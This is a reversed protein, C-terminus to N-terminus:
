RWDGILWAVLRPRGTWPECAVFADTYVIDTTVVQEFQGFLRDLDDSVDGPEGLVAADHVPAAESTSCGVHPLPQGLHWGSVFVAYLVAVAGLRRPTIWTPVGATNWVRPRAGAPEAM